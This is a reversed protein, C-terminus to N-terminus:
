GPSPWLGSFMMQGTKVVIRARPEISILIKARLNEEDLQRAANLSIAGHPRDHDATRHGVLEDGNPDIRVSVGELSQGVNM